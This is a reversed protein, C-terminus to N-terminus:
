ICLNEMEADEKWKDNFVDAQMEDDSIFNQDFDKEEM